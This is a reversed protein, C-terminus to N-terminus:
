APAARVAAAIRGHTETCITRLITVLVDVADSAPRDEPRVASVIFKQGPSFPRIVAGREALALGTLPNLIAVGLGRLVLESVAAASQATVRIRRSVGAADFMRDLGARYPDHVPFSIYDIGAFDQPTCVARESLPHSPAMVVVMDFVGLPVVEVRRQAHFSETLGLDFNFGTLVSDNRPDQTAVDVTMGPQRELLRLIADPLLTQALAPLAAITMTGTDAARLREVTANIRALGAYAADVEEWLQLARLTPFLRQRKREFLAFGIHKELRHLERTITPQSSGLAHAAATVTHFRMMARFVEIERLTLPTDPQIM